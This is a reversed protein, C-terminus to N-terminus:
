AIIKSRYVGFRTGISARPSILCDRKEVSISRFSLSVLFAVTVKNKPFFAMVYMM